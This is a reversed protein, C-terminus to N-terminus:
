AFAPQELRPRYVLLSVVPFVSIIWSAFWVARRSSEAPLGTYIWSSYEFSGWPAIRRLLERRHLHLLLWVSSLFLSGQRKQPSMFLMWSQLPNRPPIADKLHILVTFVLGDKLFDWVPKPHSPSVPPSRFQMVKSSLSAVVMDIHFPWTPLEENINNNSPSIKFLLWTESKGQKVKM